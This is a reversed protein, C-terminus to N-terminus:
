GTKGMWGSGHHSVPESSQPIVSYSRCQDGVKQKVKFLNIAKTQGDIFHTAAGKQRKGRGEGYKCQLYKCQGVAGYEMYLLSCSRRAQCLQTQIENGATHGLALSKVDRFTLKMKLIYIITHVITKYVAIYLLESSKMLVHECPVYGTSM